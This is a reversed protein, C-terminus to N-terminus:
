RDLQSLEKKISRIGIEKWIQTTIPRILLHYIAVVFNVTNIIKGDLHYLPYCEEFKENQKLSFFSRKKNIIVLKNIENRKLSSFSEKAKEIILEIFYDYEDTLRLWALIALLDNIKQEILESLFFRNRTYVKSLQDRLQQIHIMTTPQVPKHLFFKFLESTIENLLVLLEQYVEVRKRFIEDRITMRQSRFNFYAQVGITGILTSWALLEQLSLLM